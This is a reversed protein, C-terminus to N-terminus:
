GDANSMQGRALTRRAACLQDNPDDESTQKLGKWELAAVRQEALTLRRELDEILQDASEARRHVRALEDRLVTAVAKMMGQIAERSLARM